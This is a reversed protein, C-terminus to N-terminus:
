RAFSDHVDEGNVAMVITVSGNLVAGDARKDFL